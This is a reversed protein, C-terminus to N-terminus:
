QGMTGTTDAPAVPAPVLEIESNFADVAVKWSGDPQKKWITAYKGHDDLPSGDPMTMHFTFNGLTYGLDGSVAVEASTATWTVAFGPFNFSTTAWQRIADTGNMAPLHPALVSADAAFYGLFGELDKAALAGAWDADAKMLAAREAEVDVKTGGACGSLAVAAVSLLAVFRKM